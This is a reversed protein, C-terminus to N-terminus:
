SEFFFKKNVIYKSLARIHVGQELDPDMKLIHISFRDHLNFASGSEYRHGFRGTSSGLLNHKLDDLTSTFVLTKM